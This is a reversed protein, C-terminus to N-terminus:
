NCWGKLIIEDGIRHHCRGGALDQLDAALGQCLPLEAGRHCSGDSVEQQGLLRVQRHCTQKLLSLKLSLQCTSLASLCSSIAPARFSSSMTNSTAPLPLPPQQYAPGLGSLRCRKDVSCVSQEQPQGQHDALLHKVRGKPPADQHARGDVEGGREEHHAVDAPVRGALLLLVHQARIVLERHTSSREPPRTAAPNRGCLKDAPAALPCRHHHCPLPPTRLRRTQASQQRASRPPMRLDTPLVFGLTTPKTELTHM